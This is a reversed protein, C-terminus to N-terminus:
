AQKRTKPADETLVIHLEHGEFFKGSMDQAAKAAQTTTFEVLAFWAGTVGSRVIRIDRIKGCSDFFEFIADEDLSDPLPSVRVTHLSEPTGKSTAHVRIPRGGLDTGHLKLAQAAHEPQEFQVFGHGRSWGSKERLIKVELIPGCAQFLTEIEDETASYPINGFFIRAPDSSPEAQAQSVPKLPQLEQQGRQKDLKVTIWRTGFQQGDMTLAAMAESPLGFKVTCQGNFRGQRNLHLVVDEVGGFQSFRHIVEVTSVNYPLGVVLVRSSSSLARELLSRPRHLRRLPHWMSLQRTTM